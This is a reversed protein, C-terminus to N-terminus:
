AINKLSELAANYDPETTVEDVIQVYKVTNERDLIIVTRALLRLENILLGYKEAFDHFKYDSWVKVNEIKFASCFRGQAFPLDMSIGIIVVDDALEGAKSNFAKVQLECVSTDLSPFSTVIKIKGNFDSLKVENMDKDVAKFDPAKAGAMIQNGGVTLPNGELTINKAM